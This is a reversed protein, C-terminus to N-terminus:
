RMRSAVARSIEWWPRCAMTARSLKAPRKKTARPSTRSLPQPTASVRRGYRDLYDRVIEDCLGQARLPRGGPQGSVISERESGDAAAFARVRDDPV